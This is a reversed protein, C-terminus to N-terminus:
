AQAGGRAGEAVSPRLGSTIAGGPAAASAHSFWRALLLEIVVLAVLAILLWRALDSTSSDSAMVATRQEDRAMSQWPASRQLWENVAESSQVNTRGAQPDVNVALLGLPQDAADVLRHVGTTRAIPRTGQDVGADLLVRENDPTVIEVASPNVSTFSEGVVMERQAGISSLGQRILEHMLPVMLPKAPLNTWDLHLSTTFYVVLGGARPAQAQASGNNTGNDDDTTNGAAGNTQDARIPSGAIMMPSGDEYVLVSSAQTETPDVALSREVIVPAALDPLEGALMRLLGPAGSDGAPEDGLRLGGEEANHQEVELALRWPLNLDETLRQTWQHVNLDAPPMVMLLGGRQVFEDLLSWARDTLLDPRPAIVVDARRVDPAAVASPEVNVVRIPSADFPELARRIWQSPTYQEISGVVGFQRRDLVVVRLAERLSLVAHRENDAQLRDDPVSASLAVDRDGSVTFDVTFDTEATDQGPQWNIVKPEVPAINEGSLRVRTVDRDLAGGHRALRVTIRRSGDSAQPLVVTRLPDMATILTNPITTEAPPSALFTTNEILSEDLAALPEDLPASGERFESLLYVHRQTEDPANELASQLVSIAGDMDAPTQAVSLNAILERAASQDTTPPIVRPEAPGALTILGVRDGSQLSEIVREAQELHQQLASEGTEDRAGATMSNDILLYVTRPLSGGIMGAAQLMPRALALGLLLVILCRVVLLLLQELQLRRRQRKFAEILFRMAAWEVPRRRRRSLLHIVIPIAIALLGAIALAPTVFSM